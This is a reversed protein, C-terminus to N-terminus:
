QADHVDWAIRPVGRRSGEKGVSDWQLYIRVWKQRLPSPGFNKEVEWGHSGDKWGDKTTGVRIFDCYKKEIKYSGNQTSLFERAIGVVNSTHLHSTVISDAGEIMSYMRRVDLVGFSMMAGGGGGHHYRQTYTLKSGGLEFQWKIWGGYGGTGVPSHARDKIARVLHATPDSERHRMWASEHNGQAVMGIHSAYPAFLDAAQDIVRDFYNDSLLTSRLASKSGRKDGVGQMLDLSDGICLVVADREVAQALLRTTMENNAGKSDVHNDALLLCWQEFYAMKPRKVKIVHINAGHHEIDWGRKREPYRKIGPVVIEGTANSAKPKKPKAPLRAM